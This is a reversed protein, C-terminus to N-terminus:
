GAYWFLCSDFCSFFLPGNGLTIMVRGLFGEVGACVGATLADACVWSANCGWYSSKGSICLDLSCHSPGGATNSLGSTVQWHLWWDMAQGWRWAHLLFKKCSRRKHSKVPHHWKGVPDQSPSHGVLACKQQFSKGPSPELYMLLAPFPPSWFCIKM